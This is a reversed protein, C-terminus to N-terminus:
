APMGQVRESVKGPERFPQLFVALGLKWPPTWSHVVEM